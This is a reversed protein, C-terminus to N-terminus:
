KEPTGTVTKVRCLLSSSVTETWSLVRLPNTLVLVRPYDITSPILSPLIPRKRTLYYGVYRDNHRNCKKVLTDTLPEKVWGYRFFWMKSVRLYINIRVRTLHGWTESIKKVPVSKVFLILNCTLTKWVLLSSIKSWNVVLNESTIREIRLYGNM